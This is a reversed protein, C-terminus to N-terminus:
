NSEERPSYNDKKLAKTAVRRRQIETKQDDSLARIQSQRLTPEWPRTIGRERMSRPDVRGSLGHAALAANILDGATKRKQRVDEAMEGPTRGGSLKKAGGLSPDAALARSFHRKADRELGDDVRDGSVVHVHPHDTGSISGHRKHVSYMTPRPGALTHALKAALKVNADDPLEAPLWITMQRGASGNKREYLDSNRFYEVPDNRAFNPLNFHGHGLIDSGDAQKPKLAYRVRDAARGKGYSKIELRFAVM